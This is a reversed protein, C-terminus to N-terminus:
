LLTSLHGDFLVSPPVPYYVSFVNETVGFFWVETYLLSSFNSSKRRRSEKWCYSDGLRTHQKPDAAASHHKLVKTLDISGETNYSQLPVWEATIMSFTDPSIHKESFYPPDRRVYSVYYPISPSVYNSSTSMCNIVFSFENLCFWESQPLALISM